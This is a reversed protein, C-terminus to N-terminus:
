PTAPAPSAAPTTPTTTTETTTTAAAAGGPPLEFFVRATTELTLEGEPANEDENVIVTM